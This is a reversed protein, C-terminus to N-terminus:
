PSVGGVRTIVNALDSLTATEYREQKLLVEAMSCAGSGCKNELWDKLGFYQAQSNLISRAPLNGMDLELVSEQLCKENAKNELRPRLSAHNKRVERRSSWKRDSADFRHLYPLSPNVIRVFHLTMLAGCYTWIGISGSMLGGCVGLAAWLFLHIFEARQERRLFEREVDKIVSSNLVRRQEDNFSTWIDIKTKPGFGGMNSPQIGKNTYKGANQSGLKVVNSTTKSYNGGAM